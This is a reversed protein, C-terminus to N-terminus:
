IDENECNHFIFTLIANKAKKINRDKKNNQFFFAQPGSLAFTQRMLQMLLM